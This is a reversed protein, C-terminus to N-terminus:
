SPSPSLPSGSACPTPAPATPSSISSNNGEVTRCARPEPCGEIRNEVDGHVPDDTADFDLIIEEPAAAFSDLFLDVLLAEVREPHCVIKNYRSDASADSPTM